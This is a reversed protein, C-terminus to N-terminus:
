PPGDGDELIRQGDGDLDEYQDCRLTWIFGALALGGLFLSAPVLVVLINM